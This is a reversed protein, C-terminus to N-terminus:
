FYSIRPADQWDFVVLVRSVQSFHMERISVQHFKLHEMHEWVQLLDPQVVVFYLVEVVDRSVEPYFIQITLVVLNLVDVTQLIEFEQVGQKQTVVFEPVEVLEQLLDRLESEHFLKIQKAIRQSFLRVVPEFDYIQHWLDLSQISMDYGDGLSDLGLLNALLLIAKRLSITRSSHDSIIPILHLFDFSIAEGFSLLIKVFLISLDLLPNLQLLVCLHFGCPFKKLHFSVLADWSRRHFLCVFIGKALINLVSEDFPLLVLDLVQELFIVGVLLSYGLLVQNINQFTEHLVLADNAFDGIQLRFFYTKKGYCELNKRAQYTSVTKSGQSIVSSFFHVQHCNEEPRFLQSQFSWSRSTKSFITESKKARLKFYLICPLSSSELAM